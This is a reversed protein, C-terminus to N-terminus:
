NNIEELKEILAAFYTNKEPYALILKSYIEKAQDYYGQDAYIQALTETYFGSEGADESHVATKEQIAKAAYRSFVSDGSRRVREYDNQSFYDGGVVYIKREQEPETNVGTGQSIYRKLLNEIDADSWDQVSVERKIRSLNGRSVIYMATDAYQAETVEEGMSNMRRCLEMRASGFWPYLSVVGILEDLSLTSIDM